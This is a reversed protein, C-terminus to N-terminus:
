GEQCEPCIDQWEGRYKESIWGTEKKHAAANEFDYLGDIEEGCIDCTLSVGVRGLKIM